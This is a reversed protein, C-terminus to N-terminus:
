GAESGTKTADLVTVFGIGGSPKSRSYAAPANFYVPLFSFGRQFVPKCVPAAVQFVHFRAGDVIVRACFASVMVFGALFM